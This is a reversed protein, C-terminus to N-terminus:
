TVAQPVSQRMSLCVAHLTVDCMVAKVHGAGM